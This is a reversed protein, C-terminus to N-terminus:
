PKLRWYAQSAHIVTRGGETKTVVEIKEFRALDVGGLSFVESGDELIRRGGKEKIERLTFDKFIGRLISDRQALPTDILNALKDSISSQTLIPEAAGSVDFRKDGVQIVKIEGSKSV